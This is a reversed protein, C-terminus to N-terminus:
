LINMIKSQLFFTSLIKTSINGYTAPIERMLHLMFFGDFVKVNTHEPTHPEIQQELVKLLAAKNTKCISGDMHCMSLPVPTLPYILVKDIDLSKQLSICLFQGFLDRQMRLEVVKGSVTMKKKQMNDTFNLVKNQKIPKEFRKEDEACQTIFNERPENGM